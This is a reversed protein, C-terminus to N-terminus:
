FIFYKLFFLCIGSSGEEPLLLNDEPLGKKRFINRPTRGSDCRRRGSSPDELINGSFPDELFLRRSLASNNM